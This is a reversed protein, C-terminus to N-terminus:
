GGRDPNRRRDVSSGTEFLAAAQPFIRVSDRWVEVTGGCSQLALGLEFAAHDNEREFREAPGMIHGEHSLPFVRYTTMSSERAALRSAIVRETM